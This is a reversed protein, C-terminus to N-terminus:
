RCPSTVCFTFGVGLEMKKTNLVKTPLNFRMTGLLQQLVPPLIASSFFIPPKPLPNSRRFSLMRFKSRAQLLTPKCNEDWGM